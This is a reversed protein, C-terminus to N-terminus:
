QVIWLIRDKYIHVVSYNQDARIGIKKLEDSARTLVEESFKFLYRSFQGSVLRFSQSTLTWNMVGTKHTLESNSSCKQMKPDEHTRLFNLISQFPITTQLFLHQKEVKCSFINRIEDSPGPVESKREGGWILTDELEPKNITANKGIITLIEEDIDWNIYNPEFINRQRSTRFPQSSWQIFLLRESLIALILAVYTGRVKDALGVSIPYEKFHWILTRLDKIEKPDKLLLKGREKEHWKAYEILSHMPERTEELQKRSRSRDATKCLIDARFLSM